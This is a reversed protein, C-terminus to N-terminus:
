RLGGEFPQNLRRFITGCVFAKDIEYLDEWHQRPVYAMALPKQHSNDMNSIIRMNPNQNCNRCNSYCNYAM